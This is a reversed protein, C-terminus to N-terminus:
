EIAHNRLICLYIIVNKKEYIKKKLGRGWTKWTEPQETQMYMFYSTINERDAQRQCM